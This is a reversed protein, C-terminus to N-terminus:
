HINCSYVDPIIANHRYTWLHKLPQLHTFIMLQSFAANKSSHQKFQPLKTMNNITQINTDTNTEFNHESM